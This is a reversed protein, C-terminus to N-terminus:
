IIQNFIKLLKKKNSELNLYKAAKNASQKMSYLKKYEIQNITKAIQKAKFNKCLACFSSDLCEKKLFMKISDLPTSVVALRSQIYEFFKNPLANKNNFSNNPLALIGIDFQSCFPIIENLSVPELINLIGKSKEKFELLFNEDNSLIMANFEYEKKLLKAIKILKLSERDKSILGHYIVRIKKNNSELNIEKFFPPLSYYTIINKINFDKKYQRAIVDNVCIALDVNPLLEKCLYTFFIGFSNKWEIDNYELPYFERLDIVIKCKKHQKKYDLAFALLTIDEVLITDLTPLTDLIEIIKLRNKTYILKNFEKNQIAQKIALKEKETRTQANSEAKPYSFTKVNKLKLDSCEKAILFLKFKKHLALAARYPRPRKAIDYDALIAINKM